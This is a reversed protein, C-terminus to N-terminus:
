RDSSSNSDEEAEKKLKAYEQPSLPEQTGKSKGLDPASPSGAKEGHTPIRQESTDDSFGDVKEKDPMTIGGPAELRM